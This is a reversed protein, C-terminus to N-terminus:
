HRHELFPLPTEIPALHDPERVLLDIPPDIAVIIVHGVWRRDRPRRERVASSYSCLIEVRDDLVQKVIGCKVIQLHM